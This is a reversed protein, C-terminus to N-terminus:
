LDMEFIEDGDQQCSSHDSDIVENTPSHGHERPASPVQYAYYTHPLRSRHSIIRHYMLLTAQAYQEQQLAFEDGPAADLKNRIKISPSRHRGISRAAPTQQQSGKIAQHANTKEM